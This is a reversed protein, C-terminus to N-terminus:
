QPPAEEVEVGNESLTLSLIRGHENAADTAAALITARDINSISALHKATWEQIHAAIRLRQGHTLKPKM